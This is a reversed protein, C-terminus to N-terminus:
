QAFFHKVMAGEQEKGTAGLEGNSSTNKGSYDINKIGKVSAKHREKGTETVMDSLVKEKNLILHLDAAMKAQNVKGDKEFWGINAFFKPLDDFALSLIPKVANKEAEPIKYAIPIEVEEDKYVANYDPIADAGKVTAALFERKDDEELALEEQSKAPRQNSTPIDPLVIEKQLKLLQAKAPKADRSIRAQLKAVDAEYKKERGAFEDDGEGYEKTPKEPFSYTEEFLDNIEQPSYEKNEPKYKLSLKIIDEPDMKDVGALTRQEQLVSYVDDVKGEKLLNFVKESEENAFKIEAAPKPEEKPKVDDKVEDPRDQIPKPTAAPIKEPEGPKVVTPKDEKIKEDKEKIVPDTVTAVPTPESKWASENFPTPTVEKKDEVANDAVAANTDAM